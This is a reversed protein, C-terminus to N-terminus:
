IVDGKDVFSENRESSYGSDNTGGLVTYKIIVVEVESKNTVLVFGKDLNVKGMLLSKNTFFNIYPYFSSGRIIKVEVTTANNPYLRTDKKCQVKKIKM